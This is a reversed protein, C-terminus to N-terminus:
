INKEKILHAFPMNFDFIRQSYGGITLIFGLLLYIELPSM